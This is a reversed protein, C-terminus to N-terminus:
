WKNKYITKQKILIRQLPGKYKNKKNFRHTQITLSRQFEKEGLRQQGDKEIYKLFTISIEKEHFIESTVLGKNTERSGESM